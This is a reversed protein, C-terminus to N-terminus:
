EPRQRLVWIPIGPIPELEHVVHWGSREYVGVNDPNTTELFSDLGAAAAADLGARAVQRALGQGAHEPHCALIGLYWYPSKPLLAEVPGDYLEIREAAGGLQEVAALFLPDDASDHEWEAVTSPNDWMATAECNKSVWVLNKNVRKDFLYALFVSAERDYRSPDPFFYTFAPDNRFAATATAVVADRDDPTALRVVPQTM